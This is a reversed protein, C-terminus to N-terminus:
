ADERLDLRVLVRPFGDLVSGTDAVKRFGASEFLRRTGVYAMTLNVKAGANDVPYGEVAPAGRERAYAVAGEILAHSVGQKRHGPRVRFCWLSWVDLDDLHPILRNRAFSTDRRPHLAAWGVPEDDLYALVGPPPDQHCLERVRDARAPGRLSVNEKNGIRYSLCFCVNSTPKKPGVVAAVDDFVTAPRVVISM